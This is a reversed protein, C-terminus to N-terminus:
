TLGLAIFSASPSCRCVAVTYYVLGDFSLSLQLGGSDAKVRECSNQTLILGESATEATVSASLFSIPCFPFCISRYGEKLKLWLISLLNSIFNWSGSSCKQCRNCPFTVQIELIHKLLPAPPAVDGEPLPIDAKKIEQVLYGPTLLFVSDSLFSYQGTSGLVSCLQGEATRLPAWPM